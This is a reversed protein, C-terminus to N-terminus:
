KGSVGEQMFDIYGKIIEMGSTLIIYIAIIYKRNNEVAKRGVQACELLSSVPLQRTRELKERMERSGALIRALMACMVRSDIHRPACEVLDGLKIGFAALRERFAEIEERIEMNDSLLSPDSMVAREVASEDGAAEYYTFPYIRAHRRNSRIYDVVRHNIVLDSFALFGRGRAPDYRGIAENFAELAVSFEDRGQAPANILRAVASAIFPRYQAIFPSRLRDDGSQIKRVTEEPSLRIETERAQEALSLTM